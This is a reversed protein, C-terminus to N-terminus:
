QLTIYCLALSHSLLSNLHLARIAASNSDFFHNVTLPFNVRGHMQLKIVLLFAQILIINYLHLTRTAYVADIDDALENTLQHLLSFNNVSISHM